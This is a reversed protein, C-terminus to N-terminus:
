QKLNKHCIFCLILVLIMIMFMSEREFMSGHNINFFVNVSSTDKTPRPLPYPYTIAFFKPCSGRYGGYLNGCDVPALTSVNFCLAVKRWEVEIMGYQNKAVKCDIRPQGRQGTTTRLGHYLRDIYVTSGPTIRYQKLQETFQFETYWSIM